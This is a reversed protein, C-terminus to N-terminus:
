VHGNYVDQLNIWLDRNTGFYSALRAALDPTMAAPNDYRIVSAIVDPPVDLARALTDANLHCPLMFDDRLIEGPHTAIRTM